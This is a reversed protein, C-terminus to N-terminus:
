KSPKTPAPTAPKKGGNLLYQMEFLKLQLEFMKMRIEELDEDQSEPNIPNSKRSELPENLQVENPQV